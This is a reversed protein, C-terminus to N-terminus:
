GGPCTNQAFEAVGGKGPSFAESLGFEGIGTDGCIVVAHGSKLECAGAYVTEVKGPTAYLLISCDNIEAHADINQLGDNLIKIASDRVDDDKVDDFKLSYNDDRDAALANGAILLLLVVGMGMACFRM